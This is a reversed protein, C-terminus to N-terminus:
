GLRGLDGEHEIPKLPSLRRTGTGYLCTLPLEVPARQAAKPTYPTKRPLCISLSTTHTQYTCRHYQTCRHCRNGIVRFPEEAESAAQIRKGREAAGYPSMSAMAASLVVSACILRM